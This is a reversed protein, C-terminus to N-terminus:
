EVHVIRYMKVFPNVGTVVVEIVYLYKMVGWHGWGVVSM